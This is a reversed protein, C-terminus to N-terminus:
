DSHDLKNRLVGFSLVMLCILFASDLDLIQLVLQSLGLHRALTAPFEAFVPVRRM